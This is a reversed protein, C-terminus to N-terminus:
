WMSVVMNAWKKRQCRCIRKPFFAGASANDCSLLRSPRTQLGVGNLGYFGSLATLQPATAHTSGFEAADAWRDSNSRMSQLCAKSTIKGNFVQVISAGELQYGPDLLAVVAGKSRMSFPSHL